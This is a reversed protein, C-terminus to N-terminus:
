KTKINHWITNNGKKGKYPQLAPHSTWERLYKPTTGIINALEQSSLNECPHWKIADIMKQVMAPNSKKM